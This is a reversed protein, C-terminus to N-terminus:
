HPVKAKKNRINQRRHALPKQKSLPRGAELCSKREGHSLRGEELAQPPAGHRTQRTMAEGEENAGARAGM